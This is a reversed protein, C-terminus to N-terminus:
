APVPATPKRKKTWNIYVQQAISLINQVTWYLTLGSPMNYLMFLFVVPMAYNLLKMQSGSADASPPQMIKGSLLQTGLMILPLLRIDTIGLLAKPLEYVSEAVSLDPIWGPIFMAGRLEFQTNLLTYLAFFIPIQLLLPLCGSLPNVKEKKYLEAMEQNMREPKDKLRTRIEQIKPNLTAMRAMSESSKFTLPLFVIKTALTLLIIAVGWNPILKVFLELMQRLLWVIPGLIGPKDIAQDIMLGSIGFGNEDSANYREMFEAKMPGLYFRWIDETRSARVTPRSFALASRVAGPILVRSDFVLLKQDGPPVALVTFYKGILGAWTVPRDLTKTKGGTAAEKKREIKGKDNLWYYVYSRFDNRNDLKKFAPGIQPGLGLTYSVGASDVAPIDNVSNEIAVRLEFLHEGDMVVYTKKLTFPIGTASLMAKSFEFMRRSGESYERLVFAGKEPAQQYDGFALTFPRETSSGALVLEVPSGDLNRYKKLKISSVDAGATEFTLIFTDTERIVLALQASPAQAGAPDAVVKGTGVPATAAPTTGAQTSAPPSTAQQTGAAAQQGTGTAPAAVAPKSVQTTAAAKQSPFIVPLLLPVAIILVVSIAVALITRWDM